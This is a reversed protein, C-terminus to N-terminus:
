GHGDGEISPRHERISGANAVFECSPKSSRRSQLPWEASGNLEREDAWNGLHYRKVYILSDVNMVGRELVQLLCVGEVIFRDQSGISSALEEHRLFAVYGGQNKVLFDDVHIARMGLERSLFDAISSKRVGNM